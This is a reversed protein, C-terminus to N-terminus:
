SNSCHSNCLFADSWEVGGMRVGQRWGLSVWTLKQLPPSKESVTCRVGHLFIVVGGEGRNEGELSKSGETMRM